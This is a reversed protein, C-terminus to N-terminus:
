CTRTRRSRLPSSRSLIPHQILAQRTARSRCFIAHSTVEMMTISGSNDSDAEAFLADIQKDGMKLTKKLAVSLEARDITGSGDTDISAFLDM